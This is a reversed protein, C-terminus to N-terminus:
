GRKYSICSFSESPGKIVLSNEIMQHRDNFANPSAACLPAILSTKEKSADNCERESWILSDQLRQRHAGGLRRRSPLRRSRRGLSARCPQRNQSPQWLRHRAKAALWAQPALRRLHRHRAVVRPESLLASTWRCAPLEPRETPPPRLLLHRLRPVRRLHHRHHRQSQQRYSNLASSLAEAATKRANYCRWESTRPRGDKRGTRSSSGGVTIM